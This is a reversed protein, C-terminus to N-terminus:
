QQYLDAEMWSTIVPMVDDVVALKEMIPILKILERDNHDDFWSEVGIANEYNFMYSAPSNDVIVTNKLERGLRALDKVYNGKYPTCHERFLRHRVVGGTDLLDMVPDAYCALSATFIVIEYLEAMRELFYDVGPRKLVYVNYTENDIQVPVVFDANPEFNFSSHVLTEDLDLVLTKKGKDKPLQAPLMLPLKLSSIRRQHLSHRDGDWNGNGQPTVCGFVKSFVRSFLGKKKKKGGKEPQEPEEDEYQAASGDRGVQTIFAPQAM